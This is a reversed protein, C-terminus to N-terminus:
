VPRPDGLMVFAEHPLRLALAASLAEEVSPQETEVQFMIQEPLSLDYVVVRYPTM